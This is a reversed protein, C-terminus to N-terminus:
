VVFEANYRSVIKGFRELQIRVTTRNTVTDSEEALKKAAELAAHATYINLALREAERNAEARTSGYWGLNGVNLADLKRFKFDVSVFYRHPTNSYGVDLAEHVRVTCPGGIVDVTRFGSVAQQIDKTTM